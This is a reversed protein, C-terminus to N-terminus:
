GGPNGDGNGEQNKAERIRTVMELFRAHAADLKAQLEPPNGRRNREEIRQHVAHVEAKHEEIYQVAARVQEPSLRLIRAIEEHGYGGELYYYVDYVTIRTGAVRHNVIAATM